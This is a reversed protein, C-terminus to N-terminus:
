IESENQGELLQGLDSTNGFQLAHQLVNRGDSDVIDSRGGAASLLARIQFLERTQFINNASLEWALHVPTKGTRNQVNPNVGAKILQECIQFDLTRVGLHLPSYHIGCPARYDPTMGNDLLLAMVHKLRLYTCTYVAFSKADTVMDFWENPGGILDIDYNTDPPLLQFASIRNESTLFQLLFEKYKLESEGRIMDGWFRSAYAGFPYTNRREEAEKETICRRALGNSLLYVVCCGGLDLELDNSFQSTNLYEAVTAHFFEVRGSIPNEFVFGLCVGIVVAVPPRGDRSPGLSKIQVSLADQLEETTLPVKSQAMYLMTRLALQYRPPSLNKMRALSRGYEAELSETPQTLQELVAAKNTQESIRHLHLYALAFRCSM